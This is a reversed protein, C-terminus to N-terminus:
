FTFLSLLFINRVFRSAPYLKFCRIITENDYKIPVASLFQATGSLFFFLGSLFFFLDTLKKFIAFFRSVPILHHSKKAYLM